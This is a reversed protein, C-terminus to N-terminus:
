RHNVAVERSGREGGIGAMRSSKGEQGKYGRGAAILEIHTIAQLRESIPSCYIKQTNPM